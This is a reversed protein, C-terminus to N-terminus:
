RRTIIKLAYAKDVAERRKSVNLKQYISELHSKVTAPSVFLKEAIEKNQLRQALLELVDLERNTLPEILPNPIQSKSNPIQAVAKSEFEREDNTAGLDPLPLKSEPEPFAALLKDICDVSINQERLRMLLDVMPSGAEVFPRIWGGPEALAVAEELAHFAQDSRGLRELALSQLVALEINQCTFHLSVVQRRLIDLTKIAKRLNEKGGSAVQVRSRTVSPEELWFFLAAADPQCTVSSAWALATEQNGQLLALRAQCSEAVTEHPPDQLERSFKILEEAIRRADDPRQMFQYTLALGVQTEIAVKRDVTDRREKALIFYRLAHELEYRNLHYLAHLYDCWAQAHRSRSRRAVTELRDTATGAALLRGDLLHIFAEAAFVRTLYLDGPKETLATGETRLIELATDSDGVMQHALTYYMIVEGAAMGPNVPFAGRAQEGYQVGAAGDGQANALYCRFFAVEALAKSDSPADDLLAEIKEVNSEIMDFKLEFCLVWTEALLLEPRQQIIHHPLIDLWRRLVFWKDKEMALHGHSEVIKAVRTVDGASLAHKISEAILGEFEFWESAKSHLTKIDGASYHRRLQRNLLDKFLHHYRFWQDEADLNILFLNEKKLWAIFQRAGNQANGPEADASFTADCLPACFRDLISSKLLYKRIDTQQHSLIESFLYEMVYQIGGQLEPPITKFDGRHQISLAALRLGTVWGETNQSWAVAIDEDIQQKLVQRLYAATETATFRLDQLRIEALHSRARLTAINLMPDRRGILVLHMPRPPHRLLDSLFHHVSKEQICHIDDLALIFDQEITDLENALSGVLTSIPPLTPADVLTNTASVTNPFITEVAAIFYSLFQRLDNDNEDLSLWASPSDCSGLWCSVLTSKGYGAPASILTLPQERQKDLYESLRSRHVHDSPAPPRHLKTRLIPGKNTDNTM